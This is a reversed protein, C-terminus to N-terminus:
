KLGASMNKLPFSYHGEISSDCPPGGQPHLSALGGPLEAVEQTAPSLVQGRQHRFVQGDGRWLGTESSPLSPKLCLLSRRWAHPSVHCYYGTNPVQIHTRCHRGRLLESLSSAAARHKGESATLTCWQRPSAQLPIYSSGQQPPCCYRHAARGERSM